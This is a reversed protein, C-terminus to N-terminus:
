CVLSCVYVRGAALVSLQKNVYKAAQLPLWVSQGCSVKASLCKPVVFNTSFNLVFWRHLQTEDSESNDQTSTDRSKRSWPVRTSTDRIVNKTNFHRSVPASTDWLTKIGFHRTASTDLLGQLSSAYYWLIGNCFASLSWFSLLCILFVCRWLVWSFNGDKYRGFPQLVLTIIAMLPKVICFQLTAQTDICVFSVLEIDYCLLKYM